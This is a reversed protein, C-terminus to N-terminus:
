TAPVSCSTRGIRASGTWSGAPPRTTCVTARTPSSMSGSRTRAPPSRGSSTSRPRPRGATSSTTTPPGPACAPSMQKSGLEAASPAGYTREADVTRSATGASVVVSADEARDAHWVVVVSTHPDGSWSLKIQDPPQRTGSPKAGRFAAAVAATVILALLARLLWRLRGAHGTKAAQAPEDPETVAWRGWNAPRCRRDPRCSWWFGALGAPDRDPSRGGKPDTEVGPAVLRDGRDHRAGTAGPCRGARRPTSTWAVVVTTAARGPRANM